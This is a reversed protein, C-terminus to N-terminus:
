LIPASRTNRAPTESKLSWIIDRTHPDDSQWLALTTISFPADSRIADTKSTTFIHDVQTSTTITPKSSTPVGVLREELQDEDVHPGPAPHRSLM